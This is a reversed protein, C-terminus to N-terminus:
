KNGRLPDLLVSKVKEMIDTSLYNGLLMLTDKVRSDQMKRSMEHNKIETRCYNLEDKVRGLEGKNYANDHLEIEVRIRKRWVAASIASSINWAVMSSLTTSLIVIIAMVEPTNKNLMLGFAQVSNHLDAKIFYLAIAIFAMLLICM